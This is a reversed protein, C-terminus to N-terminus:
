GSEKGMGGWLGSNERRTCPQVLSAIIFPTFLQSSRLLLPLTGGEKAKEYGGKNKRGRQKREM